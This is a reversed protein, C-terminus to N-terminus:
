IELIIPVYELHTNSDPFVNVDFEADNDPPATKKSNYYDLYYWLELM